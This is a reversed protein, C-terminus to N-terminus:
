STDKYYEVAEKMANIKAKLAADNIGTTDFVDIFVMGTHRV